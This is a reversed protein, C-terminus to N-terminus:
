YGDMCKCMGQTLNFNTINCSTCETPSLCKLCEKPCPLCSNEIVVSENSYYGDKCQCRSTSNVRALSNICSSCTSTDNCTKCDALCLSCGQGGGSCNILASNFKNTTYNICYATYDIDFSCSKTSCLCNIKYSGRCPSQSCMQRLSNGDIPIFKSACGVGLDDLKMAFGCSCLGIFCLSSGASDFYNSYENAGSIMLFNWMFSTLTDYIDSGLYSNYCSSSINASSSITSNLIIFNNVIFISRTETIIYSILVWDDLNFNSYYIYPSNTDSTISLTNLFFLRFGNSNNRRIYLRYTECNRQFIIGDLYPMKIWFLVTFPLTLAFSAALENPPLTLIKGSQMFLGRDTFLSDRTYDNLNLGNIAHRGNLSYDYIIKGYNKWFRYDVFKQGSSLLILLFLIFM